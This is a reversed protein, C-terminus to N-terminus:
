EESMNTDHEPRFALSGRYLYFVACGDLEVADHLADFPYLRVTHPSGSVTEFLYEAAAEGGCVFDEPLMGTVTQGLLAAYAASFADWSMPRGNKEVHSDYVTGGAADTLPRGDEDLRATREVTYVDRGEPTAVTLSTLNDPATLIVYRTLTSLPQVELLARLTLASCLYIGGDWLVYDVLESKQGGVTFESWSEPWDVATAAGSDDTALTAGAAQHVRLTWRPADFGYLSLNEETADAAWGGMYLQSLRQCLGEVAEGEAPYRVPSTLFWRNLADGDTIDAELRWSATGGGASTIVIEDIRAKHLAPQPLPRLLARDTLLEEATGVDLALLRGDGKALFYCFVEDTGESRSGLRLTLSTGDAYTYTVAAEPPNLGFETLSAEWGEGPLGLVSTYEVSAAAAILRAATRESLSFGSEGGQPLVFLEGPDRQEATWAGGDRRTVTIRAVDLPDAQRLVGGEPERVPVESQPQALLAYLLASLLALLLAALAWRPIRRHRTKKEVTQM